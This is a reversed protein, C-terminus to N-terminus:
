ATLSHEIARARRELERPIRRRERVIWPLGRIADVLAARALPDHLAARGHRYLARLAGSASHRLLATWLRNRMVLRRRQRHDRNLASPTHRIVIDDCYWLKWGRAALDLALLSEEAGIFYRAHYGGADLFADRRVICAGAMFYVIPIGEHEACRGASSMAVCAPDISGDSGVLVRANILAVDPHADLRQVARRLSGPQWACDDDCFAIYPTSVARAGVTRAAAGINKALSTCRAGATRCVQATADRSGNDVVLIPPREPLARLAALTSRLTDARNNTAIVVSIPSTTM